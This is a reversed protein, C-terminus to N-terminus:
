KSGDRKAKKTQAEKIKQPSKRKAWGGPRPKRVVPVLPTHPISPPLDLPSSPEPPQGTGESPEEPVTVEVTYVDSFDPGSRGGHTPANGLDLTTNIQVPVTVAVQQKTGYHTPDRREASWRFQEMAARFASVQVATYNHPGSLKRALDLAKEELSVASLEKAADYARKMAPYLTLWRYITVRTPITPGDGGAEERAAKLADLAEQMTDGQAIREILAMAVEAQYAQLEKGGVRVRKSM